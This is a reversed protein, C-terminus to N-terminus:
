FRLFKFSGELVLLRLTFITIIQDDEGEVIAKNPRKLKEETLRARALIERNDREAVVVRDLHAAVVGHESAHEDAGHLREGISLLSSRSCSEM